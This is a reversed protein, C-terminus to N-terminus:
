FVRVILAGDESIKDDDKIMIRAVYQRVQYGRPIQAPTGEVVRKGASNLLYGGDNDKRKFSQIVVQDLIVEGEDSLMPISWYQNLKYVEKYVKDMLDEIKQNPELPIFLGNEVQLNEVDYIYSYKDKFLISNTNSIQKSVAEKAMTCGKWTLPFPFARSPFHNGIPKSTCEVSGSAAERARGGSQRSRLALLSSMTRAMEERDNIKM